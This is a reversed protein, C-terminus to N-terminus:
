PTPEIVCELMAAGTDPHELLVALPRFNEHQGSRVLNFRVLPGLIAERQGAEPADTLRLTPTM